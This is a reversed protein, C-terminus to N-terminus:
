LAGLVLLQKESFLLTEKTFYNGAFIKSKTLDKIKYPKEFYM